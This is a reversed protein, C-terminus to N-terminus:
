TQKLCHKEIALTNRANTYKNGLPRFLSLFGIITSNFQKWLEWWHYLNELLNKKKKLRFKWHGRDLKMLTAIDFRWCHRFNCFTSNFYLLKKIYKSQPNTRECQKKPKPHTWFLSLCFYFKTQNSVTLILM